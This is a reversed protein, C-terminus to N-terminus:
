GKSIENFRDIEFVELLHNIVQIADTKDWYDHCDNLEVTVLSCVDLEDSIHVDSFRKM